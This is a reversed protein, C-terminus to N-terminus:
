KLMQSIISNNIRSKIYPHLIILLMGIFGYLGAVILFGYYNKGMVDGIYLALAINLSLVLFSLILVLLLRSSLTSLVDATKDVSKLKILEFSTKSYQEARELLPEVLSEKIEM